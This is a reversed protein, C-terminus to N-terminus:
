RKELHRTVTDDPGCKIWVSRYGDQQVPPRSEDIQMSALITVATGLPYLKKGIRINLPETFIGQVIGTPLEVEGPVSVLRESWVGTVTDGRLLAAAQRWMTLDDWTLNTLDPLLIRDFVHKQIAVLDQLLMRHEAGQELSIVEGPISTPAGWDPGDRLAIQIHRPPRISILFELPALLDSPLHGTFEENRINLSVTKDTAHIRLEYRIVRTGTSHGVARLGEQDFGGTVEETTFDLETVISGDPDVVRLTVEVPPGVPKSPGISLVVNKSTGGFGGPLDVSVSEAVMNQLPAGFKIWDGIQAEESTGVGAKLTISGPAPRDNVAEDYRAIIRYTICRQKDNTQVTCLLRPVEQVASQPCTGDALVSDVSFDYLFHPDFQNLAKHIEEITERSESPPQVPNGMGALKLFRAVVDELREKGDHLYYDIVEPYKTVLGEVFDLGKWDRPFEVGETLVTFWDLQENTPNELTVLNWHTITIGKEKTYGLLREWSEKIQRKHSNSLPGTFGKIQYIIRGDGDPVFVDIGGDGQSPKVRTARPFERCLLIGVVAEVEEGPIRSWEIRAM